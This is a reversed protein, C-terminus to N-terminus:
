SYHQSNTQYARLFCSGRLLCQSLKELGRKKLKQTRPGSHLGALKTLANWSSNDDFTRKNWLWGTFERGDTLNSIDLSLHLQIFNLNKEPPTEGAQINKLFGKCLPQQLTASKSWSSHTLHKNQSYTHPHINHTNPASSNVQETHNFM